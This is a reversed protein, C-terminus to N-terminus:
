CTRRADSDIIRRAQFTFGSYKILRELLVDGMAMAPPYFGGRTKDNTTDLLPLKDSELALCLGAEMLMHSTALIGPNENMYMVTQVRNIGSAGVGEGFVTMYHEREMVDISSLRNIHPLLFRQLLAVTLPNMMLTFVMVTTTHLVFGTAFDPVLLTERYRLREDATMTETNNTTTEHRNHNKLSCYHAHSWGVVQANILAMIFPVTRQNSGTLVFPSQPREIARILGPTDLDLVATPHIVEFPDSEPPPPQQGQLGSIFSVMTGAGVSGKHEDWFTTQVLSDGHCEKDLIHRMKLVSLDRCFPKLSVVM